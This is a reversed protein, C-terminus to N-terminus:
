QNLLVSTTMEVSKQQAANMANMVATINKAVVRFVVLNVALAVVDVGSPPVSPVCSALVACFTRLKYSARHGFAHETMINETDIRRRGTGKRTVQSPANPIGSNLVCAFLLEKVAYSEMVACFGCVGTGINDLPSKSYDNQM